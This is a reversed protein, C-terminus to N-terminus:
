GGRTLRGGLLALGVGLLAGIVLGAHEGELTGLTMAPCVLVAIAALTCEVARPQRAARRAIVVGLAVSGLVMGVLLRWFAAVDDAPLADNPIRALMAMVTGLRTPGTVITVLLIVGLLTAAGAAVLGWRVAAGQRRRVRLDLLLAALLCVGGLWEGMMAYVTQAQQIAVDELLTEPPAGPLAEPDVVRGRAYVRGTSDIFASVGTNAARVLDLRLEVSRFVSLALVHWPESTNGFWAENSINVLLNPGRTALRRGFSPFIAEYCIM